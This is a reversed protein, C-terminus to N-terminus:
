QMRKGHQRRREIITDDLRIAIDLHTKNVIVADKIPRGHRPCQRIEFTHQIM